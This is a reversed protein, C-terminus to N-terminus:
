EEKFPSLTAGAFPWLSLLDTQYFWFAGVQAANWERDIVGREMTLRMGDKSAHIYVSSVVFKNMIDSQSIDIWWYEEPMARMREICFFLHDHVKVILYHSGDVDVTRCEYREIFPQLFAYHDLNM